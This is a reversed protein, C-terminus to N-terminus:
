EDFLGDGINSAKTWLSKQGYRRPPSSASIDILLGSDFIGSKTDSVSSTDSRARLATAIFAQRYPKAMSVKVSNKPTSMRSANPMEYPASRIAPPSVM